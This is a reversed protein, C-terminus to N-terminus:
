GGCCCDHLHFRIQAGCVDCLFTGAMIEQTPQAVTLLTVVLFGGFEELIRLTFVFLLSVVWVRMRNRLFNM